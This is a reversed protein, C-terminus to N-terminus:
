SIHEFWSKVKCRSNVKPTSKENTYKIGSFAKIIVSPKHPDALATCAVSQASQTVKM